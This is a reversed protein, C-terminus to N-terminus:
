KQKQLYDQYLDEENANWFDFADEDSPYKRLREVEADDEIFTVLVKCPTQIEINELLELKEGDYIGEVSRM